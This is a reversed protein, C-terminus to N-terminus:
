IVFGDAEDIWKCPLPIQVWGDGAPPYAFIIPEHDKTTAPEANLYTVFKETDFEGDIVMILGTLVCKLDITPEVGQTEAMAKYWEVQATGQIDIFVLMYEGPLLSANQEWHDAHAPISICALTIILVIAYSMKSM